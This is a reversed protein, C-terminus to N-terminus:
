IRISAAPSHKEYADLIDKDGMHLHRETVALMSHGLARQLVALSGGSKAFQTAGSHRALHSLLNIGAVM